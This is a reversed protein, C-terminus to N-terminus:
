LSGAFQGRGFEISQLREGVIQAGVGCVGVQHPLAIPWRLAAVDDIAEEVAELEDTLAATLDHRKVQGAVEGVQLAEEQGTGVVIESSQSRCDDGKDRM